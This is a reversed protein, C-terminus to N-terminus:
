VIIVPQGVGCTTLTGDRFEFDDNDGVNSDYGSIIKLTASGANISGTLPITVPEWYQDERYDYARDLNEDQRPFEGSAVSKFEGDVTQWIEFKSATSTQNGVFSNAGHAFGRIILASYDAEVTFPISVELGSPNPNRYHSLTENGIHFGQSGVLPRVVCDDGAPMAVGAGAWGEMDTTWGEDSITHSVRMLWLREASGVKPSTVSVVMGPMVGPDGTTTWRWRYQPTSRDIEYVNRCYDARTQTAIIEDNIELLNVGDPGLLPNKQVTAPISRVPPITGDGAPDQAGKVEVWNAMGAITRGQSVNKINVGQVYERSIPGVPLGSIKQQRVYGDNRDFLRYGYFRGLRTLMEGPSSDRPIITNGGDVGGIGGFAISAGDPYKTYDSWYLPVQRLKCLRNFINHLYVIGQITLDAQQRYWLLKALGELEIRVEGGSESFAADDEAIRGRFIRSRQGDYGAEIVVLAGLQVHPPRPAAITISGTGIPEDVDHDTQIAKHPTEIGNILVRTTRRRVAM